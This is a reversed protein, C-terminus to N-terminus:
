CSRMADRARKRTAQRKTMLGERRLARCVASVSLDHADAIEEATCGRDLADVLDERTLSPQRQRRPVGAQDLVRYITATSCDHQEALQLDSLGSEYGEVVADRDVDVPPTRAPRAAIDDHRLWGAVAPATVDFKAAIQRLSLGEEIYLRNLESRDPRVQAPSYSRRPIGLEELRHYVTTTGCGIRGAIDPASLRETVYLERLEDDSVDDRRKSPSPRLEVGAARLWNHATGRGIGLVEAVQAVTRGQEVYLRRLQDLDPRQDDM